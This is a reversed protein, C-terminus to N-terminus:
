YACGRIIHAIPSEIWDNICYSFCFSTTVVVITICIAAHATPWLIAEATGVILTMFYGIILVLAILFEIM